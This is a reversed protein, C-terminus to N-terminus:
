LVNRLKEELEGVTDYHIIEDAHVAIMASIKNGNKHALVVKKNKQHARYIEMGVGHSPITTEALLADCNDVMELDMKIEEEWKSEDDTAFDHPVIPEHGLNKVLNRLENLYDIDYNATYPAAVFIKM